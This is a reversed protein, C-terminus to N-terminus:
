ESEAPARVEFETELKVEAGSKVEAVWGLQGDRVGHKGWSVKVGDLSDFASEKANTLRAPKRLVVRIRKDESAVPVSDRVVVRPLDFGHPNKITTTIAYAATRNPDASAGGEVLAPRATRTFILRISPGGCHV